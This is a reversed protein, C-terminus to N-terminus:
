EVWTCPSNQIPTLVYCLKKNNILVLWSWFYFIMSQSSKQKWHFKVQFYEMFSLSLSHFLFTDLQKRPGATMPLLALNLKVVILLSWSNPLRVYRLCNVFDKLPHISGFVFRAFPLANSDQVLSRVFVVISPPLSTQEAYKTPRRSRPPSSREESM